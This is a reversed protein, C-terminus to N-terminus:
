GNVVGVEVPMWWETPTDELTYHDPNGIVRYWKGRVLISLGELDADFGKPFHLTYRVETGDPRTSATDDRLAGPAVLVNDVQIPEGDTIISAGFPDTGTVTPSQIYVTEGIM